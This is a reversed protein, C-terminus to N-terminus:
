SLGATQVAITVLTSAILVGIAGLVTMGWRRPHNRDVLQPGTETAVQVYQPTLSWGLIAGALLGGIHGWIDINTASFTLVLNFAIVSLTSYFQSRGREGFANRYRYFFVAQTGILGFIAGSAGAAPEASLAFSLFVGYMGSLLYISLFRYPGFFCEIQPGIMYIAYANFALHLTGVHLFIPTVLRWVEGRLILANHKAGLQLLLPPVPRGWLATLAISILGDLAWVLINLGLIIWTTTPRWTRPQIRHARADSLSEQEDPARTPVQCSPYPLEQAPETTSPTSPMNM